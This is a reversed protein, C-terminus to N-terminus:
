RIVCTDDPEICPGCYSIGDHGGGIMAIEADTLEQAVTYALVRIELSETEMLKTNSMHM